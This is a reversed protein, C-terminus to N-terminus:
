KTSDTSEEMLVFEGLGCSGGQQYSGGYNELVYIIDLSCLSSLSTKYMIPKHKSLASCRKPLHNQYKKNGIMHFILNEKDVVEVRSIQKIPICNKGATQTSSDEALAGTAVALLLVALKSITSAM